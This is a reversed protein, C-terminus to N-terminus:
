YNQYFHDLLLTKNIMIKKKKKMSKLNIKICLPKQIGSLKLVFM